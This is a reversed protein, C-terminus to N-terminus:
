LTVNKNLFFSFQRGDNLELVIDEQFEENKNPGIWYIAKIMDDKLKDGPIIKDIINRAKIRADVLAQWDDDITFKLSDFLKILKSAETDELCRNNEFKGLHLRNNATLLNKLDNLFVHTYEQYRARIGRDLINDLFTNNLLVMATCLEDILHTPKYLYDEEKSENIMSYKRISNM